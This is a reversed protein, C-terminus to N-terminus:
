DNEKRDADRSFPNEDALAQRDLRPLRIKVRTGEGIMSSMELGFDQGFHLKIRENVNYIGIGSYRSHDQNLQSSLEKLKAEAIGVGNDSVTLVLKQETEEGQIGIALPTRRGHIIANEVIPQLTFKLIANSRLEDPVDVEFQVNDHFRIKQLDLYVKLYTLEEELTVVEQQTKMTYELLRGLNTIMKGVHEAGSLAAMWKISNLTNFLFHPNIQAQLAQFRAEEKRQQEKSLRDILQQLRTLMRNYHKGVIAIEDDGNVEVYAQLDGDGLKNMSRVLQQLPKTFRIMFYIFVISFLISAGMLWLISQNRLGGLRQQYLTQPILQIVQWGLRPIEERNVSYDGFSAAGEQAQRTDASRIKELLKTTQEDNLPSAGGLLRGEGDTLLFSGGGKTQAPLNGFFASSPIGIMLLDEGEQQRGIIRRSMTFYPENLDTLKSIEGTYPYQWVPWGKRARTLEAWSEESLKHLLEKERSRNNPGYATSHVYGRDDIVAIIANSDLLIDRINVLKQQINNYRRLSMYNTEWDAESELFENFEPDNMILNSAKLVRESLDDMNGVVQRLAEENGRRAEDMVVRSSSTYYYYFITVIPIVICVFFSVLIKGRISRSPVNLRKM